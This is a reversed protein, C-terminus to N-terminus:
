ARTFTTFWVDGGYIVGNYGSVSLGQRSWWSNQISPDTPSAVRFGDFVSQTMLIPPATQSHHDTLRFFASFHENPHVIMPSFTRELKDVFQAVPTKLWLWENIYKYYYGEHVSDTTWHRTKNAEDALKSAVNAPRGLWVLEKSPTSEVGRKIVGTKAILMPGYDIGIGCRISDLAFHRDIVYKAATNMLIATNVANSFCNQRDFLVMVRDGVINRVKGNYRAACKSMSRVFASYLRVLTPRQHKEGIETSDRIDVHLICSELLKCRQEGTDLNPFTLDPDDATPVTDAATVIIRFDSGLIARVDADLEDRFADM